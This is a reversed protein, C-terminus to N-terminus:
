IRKISRVNTLALDAHEYKLLLQFIHTDVQQFDVPLLVYLLATDSEHVGLLSQRVNDLHQTAHPGFHAVLKRPLERPSVASNCPDGTLTAFAKFTFKCV